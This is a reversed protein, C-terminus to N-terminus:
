FEPPQDLTGQQAQRKLEEYQALLPGMEQAEPRPM